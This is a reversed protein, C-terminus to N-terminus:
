HADGSQIYRFISTKFAGVIIDIQICAKELKGPTVVIAGDVVTIARPSGLVKAELKAGEVTPLEVTKEVIVTIGLGNNTFIKDIEAVAIAAIQGPYITGEADATGGKVIGDISLPMIQHGKYNGLIGTVSVIDGVQVGHAALASWVKDDATTKYAGQMYRSVSVSVEVGGKTIIFLTSTTNPEPADMVQKVTWNTLSVLTSQHYNASFLGGIVENDLAHVPIETIAERTDDIVITGGSTTEILGQYNTSTTGSVIVPAGPVLREATAQDCKVRFIYYGACFDEDVIYLSINGYTASYDVSIEVVYGRMEMGIDTNAYWYDVEQLHEKRESVVMTYTKTATRGGYSFTGKIKVQPDLSNPYVICTNGDASIEIYDAYEADVSWTIPVAIGNYEFSRSLNFNEVVKTGAQPFVYSDIFDHVTTSYDGSCIAYADNLAEEATKQGQVTYVLANGVQERATSSDMFAPSTFFRDSMTSTVRAAVGTIDKRAMHEIYSDVDFTSQRCPNYGSQISFSAQFSPELLEKIFLWTMLQKEDVNEVNHGASFMVLSPGMSIASYDVSGDAQVSGPIPAIGWTFASGPNLHSAAGSSSICYVLGGDNVGKTFLGSTYAGYDNQTTFYGKDYYGRLETLWAQTNANSFLFNNSGNATTYDWGNQQCMTIFWNAESDYGLPTATPYKAKILKAQAWLEDWTTAPELGLADLATKNYYMLETSKVFPLTLMSTSSFGNTAYGGFNAAYGEAFYGPIFGAIEDANYGILRGGFMEKSNIFKTMDVVKGTQLYQAVHDPYCYALDPQTGIDFDSLITYKVDDFAGPTRHEVTWGPYKAEFAEIAKQTIEQLVIGQTSYFIITKSYPNSKVLQGDIYLNVDYHLPNAMDNEFIIADWQDKSGLFYVDTLGCCGEFASTGINTVSSPIIVSTLGACGSFASSGIATVSCGNYYSPIVVDTSIGSYGKVNGNEITLGKTASNDAYAYVTYDRMTSADITAIYNKYEEDLYWGCFLSLGKIADYLTIIGSEITYTDVNQSSNEWGNLVYTITYTNINWSATITTDKTIPKSFDYDWKDFTYGERETTPATAFSDEEINQSSVNTGGNVDFSVTHIPRRRIVVTYLGLDKGNEVLIYFTNDGVGLSVTKTRIVNSGNIDTSVIYTASDAIAIENIFSFTSTANSVKGFIDTGDLELTNTRLEVGHLGTDAYACETCVWNSDFTHKEKDSVVDHGCTSAHWHYTKDNSWDQSYKHGLAPVVTQEQLIAGCISCHKGQTLGTTTCTPEVANDIVEVHNCADKEWKVYVDINKTLGSAKLSELTTSITMDADLYYGVIHYGDKTISPIDTNMDWVIDAQGNNPHITVKYNPNQSGDNNDCAAFICTLVIAM